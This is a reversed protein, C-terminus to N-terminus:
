EKIKLFLDNYKEIIKTNLYYGFKENDEDKEDAIIGSLIRNQAQDQSPEFDVDKSCGVVLLLIAILWCKRMVTIIVYGM